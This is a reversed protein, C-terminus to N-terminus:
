KELWGEVTVPKSTFRPDRRWAGVIFRKSYPRTGSLMTIVAWRIEYPTQTPDNPDIFTFNYGGVAAATYDIQARTGVTQLANGQLGAPGGLNIVVGFSSAAQPPPGATAVLPITNATLPQSLMEDLLRQAVVVATSDYRNRLNSQMAAPVFQIVAAVGFLLIAAAIALEIMSFGAQTTSNRKTPM